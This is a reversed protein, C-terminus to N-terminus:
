FKGELCSYKKYLIKAPLVNKGEPSFMVADTMGGKVLQLSILRNDVEKFM